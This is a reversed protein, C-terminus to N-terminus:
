QARIDVLIVSKGVREYVEALSIGLKESFFTGRELLAERYLSAKMPLVGRLDPLM